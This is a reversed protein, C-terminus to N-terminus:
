SSNPWPPPTETFSHGRDEELARTLPRPDDPDIPEPPFLEDYFWRPSLSRREGPLCPGLVAVEKDGRMVVMRTRKMVRVYHELNARLEEFTVTVTEIETM